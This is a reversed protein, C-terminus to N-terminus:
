AFNYTKAKLSMTFGEISEMARAKYKKLINAWAQKETESKAKEASLKILVEEVDLKCREAIYIASKETLSRDGSKIMTISQPSLGLDAAAQKGQSYGKTQMYIKILEYSYM